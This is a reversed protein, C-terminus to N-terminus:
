PIQQVIIDTCDILQANIVAIAMLRAKNATSAKGGIILRNNAHDVILAVFNKM